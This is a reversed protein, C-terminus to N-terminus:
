NKYGKFQIGGVLSNTSHMEETKTAMEGLNEEEAVTVVSLKANMIQVSSAQIKSLCHSRMAKEHIM